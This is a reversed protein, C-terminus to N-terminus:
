ANVARLAARIMEEVSQGDESVKDLLRQSEAQRYGLAMLAEVAQTQLDSNSSVPQAGSSGDTGITDLKDAMDLLLQEATKKGIGPIKTLAVVDKRAVCAIFEDPSMGSLITLAVKAGVGKVKLLARFLHREIETAFGYLLQADERVLLHTFLEATSGVPALVYHTSMPADVEYGVGQVDLVLSPPSKELLVGKLRGIM